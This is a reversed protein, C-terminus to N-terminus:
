SSLKVNVPKTEFNQIQFYPTKRLGSISALLCDPFIEYRNNVQTVVENYYLRALAIRQETEELNRQLNLFLENSKLEQYKEVIGLVPGVISTVQQDKSPVDARASQEQCFQVFHTFITEEHHKLGSVVSVLRPILDHRRKLEVDINAWALRLRNRLEVLSFHIIFAWTTLLILIASILNYFVYNRGFLFSLGFTTLAIFGLGAFFAWWHYSSVIKEEKKTSILFLPTNSDWAVEAAIIDDRVRSRGMVYIEQHLPIIIENFRRRGTSCSIPITPGFRYYFPNSTDYIDDFVTIGEIDAKEPNIRLIGCDDQIYFLSRKEDSAVVNWGSEVITRTQVNGKSDTTTETRTKRWEEKITWSYYVCVNETLLSTLPSESEATGKLEVTGIFVGTTKSTPIDQIRRKNRICTYFLYYSIITIVLYTVFVVVAIFAPYNM